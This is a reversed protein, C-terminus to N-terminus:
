KIINLAIGITDQKTYFLKMRKEKDHNIVGYEYFRKANRGLKVNQFFILDGSTIYEGSIKSTGFCVNNFIFKRNEKLKLM